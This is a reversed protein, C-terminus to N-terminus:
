REGGRVQSKTANRRLQARRLILAGLGSLLLTLPAPEPVSTPPPEASVGKRFAFTGADAPNNFATYPVNTGNLVFGAALPSLPTGSFNDYNLEIDFDFGDNGDVHILVVQTSFQVGGDNVQYWTVRIANKLQSSDYLGDPLLVRSVQGQSYSVTGTEFNTSPPDPPAVTTLNDYFPAIVNQGLEALTKAAEFEATGGFTVFGNENIFLSNVPGAGFDITFGLLVTTAPGFAIEGSNQTAPPTLDEFVLPQDWQGGFTDNFGGIDVRVGGKADAPGAQVTLLFACLSALAWGTRHVHQM